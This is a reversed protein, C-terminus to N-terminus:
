AYTAKSADSENSAANYANLLKEIMKSEWNLDGSTSNVASDTSTSSVASDPPPPAMTQMAGSLESQSISGDGNSDMEKLLKSVDSASVDSNNQSMFSSLEDSSISGDGNQDINNFIDESSPPAMNGQPPPAPPQQARLKSLAEEYENKGVVGDQNSDMKTFIDEVSPGNKSVVSGMETKDIAGNGNQDIKNFLNQWISTVDYGGGSIQNVMSVEKDVKPKIAVGSKDIPM